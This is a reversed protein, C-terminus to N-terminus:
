AQKGSRKLAVQLSSRIKGVIRLLTYLRHNFLFLTIKMDMRLYSYVKITPFAEHLTNAIAKSRNASVICTNVLWCKMKQSYQELSDAYLSLEGKILLFDKIENICDETDQINSIKLASLSNRMVYNYCCDDVYGVSRAVLALKPFVAYDEGQHLGEIARINHDKYLSAKILKGWVTHSADGSIVKHRYEIMDYIKSPLCNVTLDKYVRKYGCIVIDSSKDLASKVLRYLTDREIYDDSDVHMLYEGTSADLATNRSASLGRNKVHHLIKVQKERNPYEELVEELIDISRDQTCDDVFIYEINDYTQEFLSRACRKIYKEVGYVPVLISVKKDEM